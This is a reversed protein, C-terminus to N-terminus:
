QRVLEVEIDTVRDAVVEAECRAPEYGRASVAFWYKGAPMAQKLLLVPTKTGPAAILETPADTDYTLETGDRESRLHLDRLEGIAVDARLHFAVRGLPKTVIKVETTRGDEIVIDQEQIGRSKPVGRYELDMGTSVTLRWRGAPLERYMCDAPPVLRDYNRELDRDLCHVWFGYEQYAKGAEDVVV